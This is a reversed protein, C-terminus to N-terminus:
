GSESFGSAGTEWGGKEEASGTKVLIFKREM